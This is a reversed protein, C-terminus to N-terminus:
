IDKLVEGTIIHGLHLLKSGELVDHHAQLVQTQDIKGLKLQLAVYISVCGFWVEAMLLSSGPAHWNGKWKFKDLAESHNDILLQALDTFRALVLERVEAHEPGKLITHCKTRYVHLQSTTPFSFTSSTNLGPLHYLFPFFSGADSFGDLAEKYPTYTYTTAENTKTDAIKFQLEKTM